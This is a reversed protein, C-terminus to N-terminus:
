MMRNPASYRPQYPMVVSSSLQPSTGPMQGLREHFVEVVDVVRDRRLGGGVASRNSTISRTSVGVDRLLGWVMLLLTPTDLAYSHAIIRRGEVVRTANPM